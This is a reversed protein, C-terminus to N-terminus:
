LYTSARSVIELLVAYGFSIILAAYYSISAAKENPWSKRIDKNLWTKLYGARKSIRAIAILILTSLVLFAISVPILIFIGQIRQTSTLTQSLLDSHGTLGYIISMIVSFGNFTAHLLMCSYISGSAELLLGLVLGLVFAYSFQNFNMHAIGFFLATLFIGKIPRAKRMGSYIVGRFLVEEVIGPLISLALISLWPHQASTSVSSTVFDRFFLQSLNNILSIVPLITFGLLVTLLAASPKLPQLRLRTKINKRSLKLYGAALGLLLLYFVIMFLYQDQLAFQLLPSIFFYVFLYMLCFCGPSKFYKM